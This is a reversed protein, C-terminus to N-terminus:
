WSLRVRFVDDTSERSFEWGQSRALRRVLSLGHGLSAVHPPQIEGSCPNEVVLSNEDLRIILRRPSAYHLANDLLNALVLGTVQENGRACATDAVDLLVDFNQDDLIDARKLLQGELASRLPIDTLLSSEARALAVLAELLSEIERCSRGVQDVHPNDPQSSTLLSIANRLTTLPTRLEHSVDRTFATERSLAEQLGCLAGDMAAALVGVEDQQEVRPLPSPRPETAIAQTLERVPRTTIGAILYVAALGFLLAVIFGFVLLLLLDPSLRSVVLWPSVEAVMIIPALGKFQLFRYHYHTDDSTFVEGGGSSADIRQRINEPVATLDQYLSVEPLSPQPLVGENQYGQQLIAIQSVMVQDIIADEVVYALLMALGALVLTNALVFLGLIAFLRGQISLKMACLAIASM